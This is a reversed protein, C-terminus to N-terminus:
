AIYLVKRQAAVVAATQSFDLRYGEIHSFAEKKGVELSGTFDGSVDTGWILEQSNGAIMINPNPMPVFEMQVGLFSYNEGSIPILNERYQQGFNSYNILDRVSYDAFIRLDNTARTSDQGYKLVQPIAQHVKTLEAGINLATLPVGSVLITPVAEPAGGPTLTQMILKAVVGDIDSTNTPMASALTKEPATTLAANGALAVAAKTTAGMHSWFMIDQAQATQEVVVELIMRNGEESVINQVGASLTEAFRTQRFIADPNYEDYVLAKQPRILADGFNISGAPAPRNPTYAQIVVTGGVSTLTEQLKIDTMFRVMKRRLTNNRYLIDKFIESFYTGRYTNPVYTVAM